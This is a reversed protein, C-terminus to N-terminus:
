ANRGFVVLCMDDSQARGAAHRKVDDLITRGLVAANEAELSVEKQLRELTYLENEPNLAESIGDTFLTIVEGPALSLEAAEYNVGDAIGLPFGAIAPAVEEVKGTGLRAFPPMHGANVITVRHERPDLLALVFTVFRDEWGARCFTENIRDVAQAATPESVLCYRVEASLKAMVLAASVGKGSVDALVVAVRGGPLLIYDYFDGGVQYAPEYFDFFQYGEVKPPASPLLGQQVKHALELDHQVAMQRLQREHLQANDLAFAAQSAVGALVELDESTFRGRQDLTDIQIVGLVSGESNVMPACMMSRIRFDAISQSMEFRADTAADASLIAQKQKIAENVITRSIRANEEEGKRRQKFAKPVLKGEATNLVVFGRDAQVFINFLSDLIKPLIQDIATAQALNQTIEIMARLKTEPNAALRLGEGSARIDLKMMVTSSGVKDGEGDDVAFLGFAEGAGPGPTKSVVAPEERHFVLSLDCIKVEDGDCLQQPGSILQGNVLTGNRSRLDELVYEGDILTIQAHQRSVAGQDLVIDCEPHRGLIAREGEISLRQGIQNGNTFELVAM